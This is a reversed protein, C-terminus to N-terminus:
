IVRSIGTGIGARARHRHLAYSALRHALILIAEGDLLREFDPKL